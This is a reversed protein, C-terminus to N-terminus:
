QSLSTDIYGMYFGNDISVERGEMRYVKCNFRASFKYRKFDSNFTNIEKFEVIEFNSGAQDATFHSTSYFSFFEAPNSLTIEFGDAAGISYKKTGPTFIEAISDLSSIRGASIQLIQIDASSGNGLKQLGSNVIFGTGTQINEWTPLYFIDDQSYEYRRDGIDFGVAAPSLINTLSTDTTMEFTHSSLEGSFADAIVLTGSCFTSSHFNGNFSGGDPFPISFSGNTIESLGGADFFFRQKFSKGTVYGIQIDPILPVSDLNQVQFSLLKTQSSSGYWAGEFALDEPNVDKPPQIVEEECSSNLIFVLVFVFFAVRYTNVHIGSINMILILSYNRWQWPM